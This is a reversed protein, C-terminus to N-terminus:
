HGSYRRRYKENIFDGNDEAEKLALTQLKISFDRDFPVSKTPARPKILISDEKREYDLGRPCYIFSLKQMIFQKLLGHISQETVVDLDLMAIAKSYSGLTSFLLEDLCAVIADDIKNQWPVIDGHARCCMRVIDRLENLDVVLIQM